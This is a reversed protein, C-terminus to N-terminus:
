EVTLRQVLSGCRLVYLGPPLGRLPLAPGDAAPPPLQRHLRGLADYVEVASAAAPAPGTLAVWAEAHAPNPFVHLAPAAAAPAALAVARVPSYHVTGDTDLQRLRYYAIPSHTFPHIPSNDLFTYNTPSTKSGQGPLQGIAAFALGDPSREIEWRECNTETATRWNLLVARGQPQAEFSLLEVPLPANASGLTWTSFGTIGLRTATNAVADLLVGTQRAWPGAPGTESKFLVLNNEAILGLEADRYSFVMAVNLGTNVAPSIDYYRGIGTSNNVGTAPTGTVRRVRTTGPLTPGSPTLRLGLGGFTEALGATALTRTIEVTGQVYGLATETLLAAPALSVQFTGTVLVGSTLTLATGIALDRTLSVTGTPKNLAVTAFATAASGGLTQAAPGNCLVPGALTATGGNNAFNGSLQLTATAATTLAAGSALTLNLVPYTGAAPLSPYRALGGPLVASVTASPRLGFSWNACNMWDTSATGTWTTSTQAVPTTVLVTAVDTATNGNADTITLTVANVGLNACTFTSPSATRANTAAFGCTATSGNDLMAGTISATGDAALVVTLNQAQALVTCPRTVAVTYTTTTGNEATVVVTLTTLGPALPLAASTAGSALAVGNVAITAGDSAAALTPRLTTSATAAGVTLTYALTGPAFVPSLSGASAQLGFLASGTNPVRVSVVNSPTGQGGVGTKRAMVRYFYTRGVNLGSLARSLTSGGAVYSPSGNILSNGFTAATAVELTYGDPTGLTPATWNATFGDTILGTAATATPRMLALSAIYNSTSNGLALTANTLTAHRANASLDLVTTLGANAGAPLHQDFSYYLLLGTATRPAALPAAYAAAIDAASRAVNWVRVEDLVGPWYYGSATSGYRGITFDAVNTGLRTLGPQVTEAVGDVYVTSTGTTGSGQWVGVIHHWKGDNISTLSQCLQGGGGVAFTAKSNQLGLWYDNAGGTAGMALVQTIANTRVWAELTFSADPGFQLDPSGPVALFDGTGELALANGPAALAGFATSTATLGGLGTLTTTGSAATGTPVTFVLAAGTNSLITAPSGNVSLATAGTLNVGTLTVPVNPGAPNPSFAALAPVLSANLRVSVNASAENAALLDLDRDNDLDALFLRVPASGVTIEGDTPPTSFLGRGDNRRLSVTTGGKNTALADLDGDADVDALVVASPSAGVPVEAGVAPAVFGITGTALDYGTNLRVSLTGTANRNATVLDLFGDGNVDAAAVQFPNSGVPVDLRRAFAAATSGAGTNYVVSVAGPSTEGCALLDLRGDDNVDALAVSVPRTGVAIVFASPTFVGTGDNFLVTATAPTYNVVVADLDGDADVDGLAVAQPESGAAYNAAPGFTGTANGTGLAVSLSNGSAINNATVVDLHGDGNLDGLALDRINTGVAVTTSSAGFGGAGNGLRYTVGGAAAYNAALLDPNNDHNLDGVAVAQAVASLSVEPATPPLMRGRGLGATAVTFQRVSARTRLGTATAEVTAPVTLRVTEGARFRYDPLGTAAVFRVTTDSVSVTGPKLGGAQESFVRLGTASTPLVNESYFLSVAEGTPVGDNANADPTMATLVFVNAARLGTANTATGAPTTLEVTVAGVPTGVPLIFRVSNGNNGYTDVRVGSILLDTLGQFNAGRIEVSQGIIGLAPSFSSIVPVGINLRVAVRGVNGTADRDTAAAVDLDGDNDLDGLALATPAAPLPVDLSDAALGGDGTGLWRRLSGPGDLDAYATALVDLKGDGDLDGLAVSSSQAPLVRRPGTAAFTGTGTGRRLHLQGAGADPSSGAILALDLHSDNDLDGVRLDRLDRDLGSVDPAATYALGTGTNLLVSVTGTGGANNNATLLDLLGDENVDALALGQPFPGTAIEASGATFDGSGTNLRISVTGPSGGRTVALDLDGDGDLDALALDAAASGAPLAITSTTFAAPWNNTILSITNDGTNLVLADLDGDGNVDATAVATPAAGVAVSTATAAFGAGGTGARILLANNDFDTVLLDLLGDGTLDALATGRARGPQAYDNALLTDPRPQYTGSGSPDTGMTFQYVTPKRSAVGYGNTMGAPMTVQMTEGALAAGYSDATAFSVIDFVFTTGVRKGGRQASFLSPRRVPTFQVGLDHNYSIIVRSPATRPNNVSNARPTSYAVVPTAYFTVARSDVGSANSVSVLVSARTLSANALPVEPMLFTLGTRTSTLPVVPRGDVTLAVNTLNLGTITVVRGAVLPSASTLTIIQPPLTGNYRVLVAGLTSSSGQVAVAADLDGDGDFDALALAQALNNPVEGAGAVAGFTGNGNGMWTRLAANSTGPDVVVFDLTGDGDLDGVDLDRSGVPGSVLTAPATNSTFDGAGNGLCINVTGTGPCLAAVDLLGDNNFDAAQVVTPGAALAVLASPAFAPTASGSNLLLRVRNTGACAVVIDLLGDRNFDGLAVGQPNADTSLDYRTAAATGNNLVVSLTGSALNNATVFDQDGDADLDGVALAALNSGVAIDLSTPFLAAATNTASGTNLWVRVQGNATGVLLDPLGDFSLDALVVAVPPGPCALAGAGGQLGSAGDSLRLAVTNSAGACAVVADAKGDNNVDGVAVDRPAENVPEQNGNGVGNLLGSATGPAAARFQVVQRALPKAGGASVISGPLSLSVLEGPWWRAAAGSANPAFTATRGSANWLGTKSGTYSSYLWARSFAAPNVAESFTLAASAPGAIPVARAQAAPSASVVTFLAGFAPSVTATGGPTTLRIPAVAPCGVPVAFTCTNFNSTLPVAAVGGVTLGSLNALNAGNVTVLTGATGTPPNFSSVTPPLTVVNALPTWTNAGNGTVVDLDGDNDLDALALGVPDLGVAAAPLTAWAGAGANLLVSVNDSGLNTAVIDLDGDADLDGVQVDNPGTGVAVITPAAFTGTGSNFAISVRGTGSPNHCGVLDPAGDGNVDDLVLGSLSSGLEVVAVAASGPGLRAAGNNFYLAARSDTRQAVALDLDGDGDLDALALDGARTNPLTLLSEAAIPLLALTGSGNNTLVLVKAEARGGVVLDLDGDADLDGLALRDPQRLAVPVSPAAAFTGNGANLRVCVTGTGTTTLQCSVLLDLDGDGDVDGVTLSQPLAETAVAPQLTYTGATSTGFSISVSNVGAGGNLALLDPYGDNNLDAVAMSGVGGTAGTGTGSGLPTLLGRGAGATAIRHQQVYGRLLPIGTNSRIGTTASTQVKEGVRFTAGPLTLANGSATPLGGRRGGRQGSFSFLTGAAAAPVDSFGVSVPASAGASLAQAAPSASTRVFDVQVTLTATATGAPTSVAVPWAGPGVGAPVVFTCGTTLGNPVVDTAAVGNVTLGTIPALNTGTLTVTRGVATFSPALTAITPVPLMLQNTYVQVTGAGAGNTVLDLDGDHDLDALAQAEGGVAFKLGGAAYGPQNNVTTGITGGVNWQVDPDGDGDLDALLPAVWNGYNGPLINNLSAPRYYLSKGGISRRGSGVKLMPYARGDRDIGVLDDQNDGDLDACAMATFYIGSQNVTNYPDMGGDESIRGFGNNLAVSYGAEWEAVLKLQDNRTAAISFSVLPRTSPVVVDLDGDRDVDALAFPVNLGVGYSRALLGQSGRNIWIEVNTKELTPNNRIISQLRILSGILEDPTLSGERIGANRWVAYYARVDSESLRETSQSTFLVEQYGDGDMDAIQLDAAEANVNYTSGYGFVGQANSGVTLGGSGLTNYRVLLRSSLGSASPAALAVLDLWGDNNMDALKITHIYPIPFQWNVTGARFTGDGSGLRWCVSGAADDATTILDINGDNNFDGLAIGQASPTGVVPTAAGRLAWFGRGATSTATTFRYTRGRAAPDNNGLTLPPIVNTVSMNVTEGPEFDYAYNPVIGPGNPTFTINAGPTTINGYGPSARQGGRVSSFVKLWNIAGGPTNRLDAVVQTNRPVDRKGNSPLIRNVTTQGWALGPLALVLGLVRGWACAAFFQKM